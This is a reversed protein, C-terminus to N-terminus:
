GLDVMIYMVEFSTEELRLDCVRQCLQFILFFHFIFVIFLLLLCVEEEIPVFRDDNVYSFLVGDGEVLKVVDDHYKYEIDTVCNKVDKYFDREFKSYIKLQWNFYRTEGDFTVSIQFNKIDDPCRYVAENKGTIESFNTM